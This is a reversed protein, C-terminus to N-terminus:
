ERIFNATAPFLDPRQAMIAFYDHDTVILHDILRLQLAEGAKYIASSIKLEKESPAIIGSPHNHVLIIADAGLLLANRYVLQCDVIHSFKGGSSLM